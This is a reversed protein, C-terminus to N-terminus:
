KQIIECTCSMRSEQRLRSLDRDVSVGARWKAPSGVKHQNLAQQQKETLATTDNPLLAPKKSLRTELALEM